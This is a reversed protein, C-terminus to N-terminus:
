IAGSLRPRAQQEPESGRRLDFDSPLRERFLNPLRDLRLIGIQLEVPRSQHRYLRRLDVDLSPALATAELARRPLRRPFLRLGLNYFGFGVARFIERDVIDIRRPMRDFGRDFRVRDFVGMASM